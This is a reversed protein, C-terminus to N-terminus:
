RNEIMSNVWNYIPTNKKGKLSKAGSIHQRLRLELSSATIGIYKPIKNIDEEKFLKYINYM